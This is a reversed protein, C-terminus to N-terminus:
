TSKLEKKRKEIIENFPRLQDIRLSTADCKKLICYGLNTGKPIFKGENFFVKCNKYGVIWAVKMDNRIRLFVYFDADQKHVGDEKYSNVLCEYHPMPKVKTSISKVEIRKGCVLLDYNYEDAIDSLQLLDFIVREGLYGYLIRMLEAGFQNIRLGKGKKISSCRDVTEDRQIETIQIEIM